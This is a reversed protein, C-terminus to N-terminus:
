GAAQARRAFRAICFRGHRVMRRVSRIFDPSIPWAHALKM